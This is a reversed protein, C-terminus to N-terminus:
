NRCQHEIIHQGPRNASYACTKIQSSQNVFNRFQGPVIFELNWRLSKGCAQRNNHGDVEPPLIRAAHMFAAGFRQAYHLEGRHHHAHQNDPRDDCKEHLSKLGDGEGSRFSNFESRIRQAPQFMRGQWLKQRNRDHNPQAMRQQGHAAKFRQGLHVTFDGMRLM